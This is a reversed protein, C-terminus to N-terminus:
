ASKKSGAISRGGEGPLILANLLLTFCAEMDSRCALKLWGCVVCADRRDISRRGEHSCASSDNERELFDDILDVVLLMGDLSRGSLTCAMPFAMNLRFDFSLRSLTPVLAVEVYVGSAGGSIGTSRLRADDTVLSCMKALMLMKLRRLVTCAPSSVLLFSAMEFGKLKWCTACIWRSSSGVSSRASLLVSCPESAATRVGGATVTNGARIPGASSRFTGFKAELAVRGWSM